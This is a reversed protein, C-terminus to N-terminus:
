NVAFEATVVAKVVKEISSDDSYGSDSVDNVLPPTIQFVGQSARLLRGAEGGGSEALTTARDRANAMAEGLMQLKMQELKTYFFQPPRSEFDIGDRILETARRSVTDVLVLDNSSFTVTRRLRYRTVDATMNGHADRLYVPETQISSLQMSDAAVGLSQLFGRVSITEDEVHAYGGALDVAEVSYVGSWRGIDSTIPQEAYGKVTISHDRAGFRGLSESAIVTCIILAAAVVTAVAVPILRHVM